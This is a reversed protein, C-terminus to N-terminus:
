LGEKEKAAKLKKNCQRIVAKLRTKKNKYERDLISLDFEAKLKTRILDSYKFQFKIHAAQKKLHEKQKQTM